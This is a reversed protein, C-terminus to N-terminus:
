LKVNLLQGTLRLLQLEALKAQYKAANKTAIANLLNLQAQRFAVSTIQGLKYREQSRNFNNTNTIVNQAQLDYIYQTNQYDGKANAIDRLIEQTLQKRLLSQNEREIKANKVGILTSGGDFINWQLSASVTLNNGVDNRGPFFASAPNENRNIGYSGSLGVTPLMISKARKVVYNSITIEHAIQQLNVNHKPANKIFEDMRLPNVFNVLTDIDFQTELPANLVVNIDRKINRLQQQATLLNISDTAIDVQANLLELKNVQGYEFQFGARQARQKSIKLAASLMQTNEKIRVAEYYISFLQLMTNEITERAQLESLQYQEKLQKYNYYRGLGDFLTYDVNLAGSYQRREADTIEVNPIPNGENNLAGGFDTTNNNLDYLANAGLSIRPLYGSNLINTNNKAVEVSMQARKVGFNSALMKQAALEPTLVDEQAQLQSPALIAKAFAFVFALTKCIKFMTM